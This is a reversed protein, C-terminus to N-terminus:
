SNSKLKKKITSYDDMWVGNMFGLIYGLGILMSTMVMVGVSQKFTIRAEKSM